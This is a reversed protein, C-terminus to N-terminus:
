RDDSPFGMTGPGSPRKLSGQHFIQRVGIINETDLQMSLGIPFILLSRDLRTRGTVRIAQDLNTLSIRSMPEM